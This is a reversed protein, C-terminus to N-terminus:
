YTIPRVMHSVALRHFVVSLNFKSLRYGLEIDEIISRFAQNFVGHAVLFSRKCSSRGGWFYTYDLKQGHRLNKYAFLQQGVDIVDEAPALTQNALSELSSRLLAARNFTPIVVSIRPATRQQSM